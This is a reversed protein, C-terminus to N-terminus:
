LFLRQRFDGRADARTERLHHNEHAGRAVERPALEQGAEEVKGGGAENWSAPDDADREVREVSLAEALECAVREALEERALDQADVPVREGLVEVVHREFRARLREGGGDRAGLQRDARFAPPQVVQAHRWVRRQRRDPHEAGRVEDLARADHHLFREARIERARLRQVVVQVLHEVFLLDEPDVVEEALFGRLVNEREPERVAQELRDPVAVEDVVDLDVHRLRDAEPAADGEVLRDARKAVHDDRM